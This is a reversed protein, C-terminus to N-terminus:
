INKLLSKIFKEYYQTGSMQGKPEFYEPIPNVFFNGESTFMKKKGKKNSKRYWHMGDDSQIGIWKPTHKM